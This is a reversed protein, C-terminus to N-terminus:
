INKPSSLLQSSLSTVDTAQSDTGPSGPLAYLNARDDIKKNAKQHKEESRTTPMISVLPVEEDRGDGRFGPPSPSASQLDGHPANNKSTETEEALPREHGDGNKAGKDSAQRNRMSLESDEKPNMPIKSFEVEKTEDITLQNHVDPHSLITDNPSVSSMPEQCVPATTCNSNDAFDAEETQCYVDSIEIVSPAEGVCCARLVFFVIEKIPELTYEYVTSIGSGMM